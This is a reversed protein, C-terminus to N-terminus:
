EIVKEATILLAHPIKLGLAKATKGNIFLEFKTPQEVPLDAPKTGKFIRDAYYAARRMIDFYSPGYSMLGGGDAHERLGAVSPLRHRVTLEAVLRGNSNLLADPIVVVAEAKDRKLAAFAAEIEQVTRAEAPVIKIRLTAAAAQLSALSAVSTSNAPNFLAAVRKLKPAMGLLHELRKPMIEIMMLSTGTINGGPRALTKVFGDSVPDGAIGMVVPITTTARQAASISQAGVAVIVDPKLQVLESAVAPCARRTAAAM